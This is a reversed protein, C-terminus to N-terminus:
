WHNIPPCLRVSSMLIVIMKGRNKKKFRPSVNESNLLIKRSQAFIPRTSSLKTFAAFLYLFSSYSFCLNKEPEKLLHSSFFVRPTAFSVLGFVNTKFDISAM